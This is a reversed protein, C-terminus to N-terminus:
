LEFKSSSPQIYYNCICGTCVLLCGRGSMNVIDRDRTVPATQIFWRLTRRHPGRHLPRAGPQLQPHESSVAAACAVQLTTESTDYQNGEKNRGERSIGSMHNLCYDM